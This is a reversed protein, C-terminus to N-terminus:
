QKKKELLLRCVLHDPSQLESTHEESRAKARLEKEIFKAHQTKIIFHHSIIIRAKARLLIEAHLAGTPLNNNFLHLIHIVMASSDTSCMSVNHRLQQPRNEYQRENNQYYSLLQKAAIRAQSLLTVLWGVPTNPALLLKGSQNIFGSATLNFMILLLDNISSKENTQTM